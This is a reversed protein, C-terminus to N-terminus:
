EDYELYLAEAAEQLKAVAEEANIERSQILQGCVITMQDEFDAKFKCWPLERGNELQDFAVKYQPHEAWLNQITETQTSTKTTPLYGTRAADDAIQEDTMIFALFEWAADIYEQPNDKLLAINGGGTPASPVEWYPLYVVGVEFDAKNLINAMSGCSNFISGFVGTYFQETASVGSPVPPAFWGEDVWERWATLARLLCGDELCPIRTGEDNFLASGMQWMMNAIFWAPDNPMYVGYRVTEGNEVKTMAKGFAIMDEITKPAEIGLEDAVTKNYYFVPTSRIYPLAILEGEYYSFGLLAQQFNSMDIGSKEVYPTLDVLKGEIAFDPVGAARELVVIEPILDQDGTSVANMIASKTKVYNGQYLHEVKIGKEAGITANFQDVSDQIRDGNAGSGRTHWITVVIPDDAHAIAALSLLMVAALVLSLVKKM